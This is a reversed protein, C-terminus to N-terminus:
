AAQTMVADEEQKARLLIRDWDSMTSSARRVQEAVRREQLVRKPYTKIPTTTEKPPANDSRTPPTTTKAPALQRIPQRTRVLSLLPGDVYLLGYNNENPKAVPITGLLGRVRLRQLARSLNAKPSGSLVELEALTFRAYREGHELRQLPKTQTIRRAFYMLLVITEVNTCKGQAIYQLARRSVAKPRADGDSRSNPGDFLDRLRGRAAEIESASLRRIGRSRASKNLIHALDVRSDPHLAHHELEAAFVRLETRTVFKSRYGSIVDLLRGREALAYGKKFENKTAPKM